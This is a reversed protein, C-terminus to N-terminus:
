GSSAARLGRGPPLPATARSRRMPRDCAAPWSASCSGPLDPREVMIALIAVRDLRLASVPELATVTATREGGDLVAIEGVVAGKELFDLTIERGNASVISVRALGETIIYFCDGADGQHMIVERAKFQRPTARVV